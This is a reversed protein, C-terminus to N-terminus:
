PMLEKVPFPPSSALSTAVAGIEEDLIDGDHLLMTCGTRLTAGQPVHLRASRFAGVTMVGWDAVFWSQPHGEVPHPILTIGARAGAGVPGTFDVWDANEFAAGATEIEGRNSRIRSGNAAVMSESVRANFFAHRTPGLQVAHGAAKIDSVLDLRHCTAGPTVVIRRREELVVRGDPAAWEVPGRWAITQNIQFCSESLASGECTTEVQRGPARGQFTENVYFNYTYEEHTGVTTPVLLHVHDAGIWCSNHHPHDAPSESSLLFGAPSFLPFLYPRFPGATMGLVARGNWSLWRRTTKAYAGKPLSLADADFRFGNM